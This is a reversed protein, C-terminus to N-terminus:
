WYLSGSMISTNSNHAPAYAFQIKTGFLTGGIGFTFKDKCLGTCMYVGRGADYKAGVHVEPHNFVNQLDGAFLWRGGMYNRAYGVNIQRDAFTGDVNPELANRVMVGFTANGPVDRLYGLDIAVGTRKSDDRYASELSGSDASFVEYFRNSTVSRLTVGLNGGEKVPRAFSIGVNEHIIGSAFAAGDIPVGGSYLLMQTDLSVRYMPQAFVAFRPTAIAINSGADFNVTGCGMDLLMDQLDGSDSPIKGLIDDWALDGSDHPDSGRTGVIPEIIQQPPDGTENRIAVQYNPPQFMLKQIKSLGAPNWFPANPDDAIATFAGGMGVAMGGTGLTQIQNAAPEEMKKIATAPQSCLVAILCLVGFCILERRMRM